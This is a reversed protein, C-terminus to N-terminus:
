FITVYLTGNNCLSVKKINNLKESKYWVLLLTGLLVTPVQLLLLYALTTSKKVKMNGAGQM